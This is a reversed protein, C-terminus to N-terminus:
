VPKQESVHYKVFFKKENKGKRIIYRLYVGQWM